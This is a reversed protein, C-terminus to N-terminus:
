ASSRRIGNVMANCLSGFCSSRFLHCLDSTTKARPEPMDPAELGLIIHWLFEFSSGFSKVGPLGPRERDLPSTCYPELSANYAASWQEYTYHHIREKRVYFQACCMTSYISMDKQKLDTPNLQAEGDIGFFSLIRKACKYMLTINDIPDPNAAIWPRKGFWINNVSAYYVDDRICQAAEIPYLSHQQPKAHVFLMKDPLDYYFDYIFKLYVGAEEHVNKCYPWNFPSKSYPDLRQYLYVDYPRSLSNNFLDLGDRLWQPWTTPKHWDIENHVAPVIVLRNKRWQSQNTNSITRLFFNCVIDKSTQINIFAIMSIGFFLIVFIFCKIKRNTLGTNFM